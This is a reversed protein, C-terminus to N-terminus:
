TEMLSTGLCRRNPPATQGIPWSNNSSFPELLHQQWMEELMVAMQGTNKCIQLYQPLAVGSGVGGGPVDRTEM